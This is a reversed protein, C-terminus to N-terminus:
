EREKSHIQQGIAQNDRMKVRKLSINTSTRQALYPRPFVNTVSGTKVCSIDLFM